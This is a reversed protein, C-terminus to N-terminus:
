APDPDPTPGSNPASNPASDRASDPAEQLQERTYRAIVQVVAVAPVALFAGVIGFLTGFLTTMFTATFAILLSVRLGYLVRAFLDRGTGPEVGFPHEWSIGCFFGSDPLGCGLPVGGNEKDLVDGNLAIPDVGMLSCIQPAFLAALLLIILVVLAVMGAKDRRFRGWAIASLSRGKIEEPAASVEAVTDVPATM